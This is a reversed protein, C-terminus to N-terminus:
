LSETPVKVLAYLLCPPRHFPRDDSASEHAGSYTCFIGNEVAQLGLSEMRGRDMRAASRPRPNRCIMGKRLDGSAVM